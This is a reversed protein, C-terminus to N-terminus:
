TDGGERTTHLGPAASDLVEDLADVLSRAAEAPLYGM